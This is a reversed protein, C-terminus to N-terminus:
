KLAFGVGLTIVVSCVVIFWRSQDVFALMTGVIIILIMLLLCRREQTHFFRKQIMHNLVCCYKWPDERIPAHWKPPPNMPKSDKVATLPDPGKEEDDNM